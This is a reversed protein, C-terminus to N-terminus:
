RLRRRRERQAGKRGDRSPSQRPLKTSRGDGDGCATSIKRKHGKRLGVQRSSANQSCAEFRSPQQSSQEPSMDSPSSMSPRHSGRSPVDHLLGTSPRSNPYPSIRPRFDRSNSGILCGFCGGSPTQSQDPCKGVIDNSPALVDGTVGKLTKKLRGRAKSNSGVLSPSYNSISKQTVRDKELSDSNNGSDSSRSCRRIRTIPKKKTRADVKDNRRVPIVVSVAPFKERRASKAKQRTGLSPPNALTAQSQNLSRTQPGLHSFARAQSESISPENIQVSQATVRDRTVGTQDGNSKLGSTTNHVVYEFLPKLALGHQYLQQLHHYSM